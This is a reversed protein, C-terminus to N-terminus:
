KWNAFSNFVQSTEVLLFPAKDSLCTDLIIYLADDFDVYPERLKKTFESICHRIRARKQFMIKYAKKNELLISHTIWEQKMV